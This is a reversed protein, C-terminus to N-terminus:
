PLIRIGIASLNDKEHNEKDYHIWKQLLNQMNRISRVGKFEQFFQAPLRNYFGDSCLLFLPDQIKGTEIQPHITENVGLCQELLYMNKRHDTTLQKVKQSVTYIRTDGIHFLIYQQHIFLIGSCTTGMQIQHNKAYARIIENLDQLQKEISQQLMYLSQNFNCTEFWKSFTQVVTASAIEGFSLGGLGDCIVALVIEESKYKGHLVLLSDQNIKKITGADTKASYIFKSMSDSEKGYGNRLLCLFLVLIKM